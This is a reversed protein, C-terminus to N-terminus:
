IILKVLMINIIYYFYIDNSLLVDLKRIIYIKYYIDQIIKILNVIPGIFRSSPLVLIKTM